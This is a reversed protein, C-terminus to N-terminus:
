GDQVSRLAVDRALVDAALTSAVRLIPRFFWAPALHREFDFSVRLITGESVPIVDYRLSRYSVWGAYPTTDSVVTFVASQGTAETVQLHLQGAGERGAFRVIRNAGLVTGEDVVVDIPRPFLALAAPLPFDPSTATQMTEWVRDPARSIVREATARGHEDFEYGIPTGELSAFGLVACVLVMNGLEYFTSQPGDGGKGRGLIANITRAVAIIVLAVIGVVVAIMLACVVVTAVTAIVDGADAMAPEPVVISGFFLVAFGMCATGGSRRMAQMAWHGAAQGSVFLWITHVMLIIILPSIFQVGTTRFATQAVFWAYAFGLGGAIVHPSLRTIRVGISAM